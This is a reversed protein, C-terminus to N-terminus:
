PTKSGNEPVVAPEEEGVLVWRRKGKWLPDLERTQALGELLCKSYTNTDGSAIWEAMALNADKSATRGLWYGASAALFLIVLWAFTQIPLSHAPTM